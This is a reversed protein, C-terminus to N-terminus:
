KEEKVREIECDDNLLWNLSISSERTYNAGWDRCNKMIATGTFYYTNNKSSQNVFRFLENKKLGLRKRILFIILRKM